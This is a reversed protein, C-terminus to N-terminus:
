CFSGPKLGFVADWLNQRRMVHDVDGVDTARQPPSRSDQQLRLGPSFGPAVSLLADWLNKLSEGAHTGLVCARLRRDSPADWLHSPAIPHATTTSVDARGLVLLTTAPMSGAGPITRTAQGRAAARPLQHFFGPVFGSRGLVFAPIYGGKPMLDFAWDPMLDYVPVAYFADEVPGDFVDWPAVPPRGSRSEILVGCVHEVFALREDHRAAPASKPQDPDCLFLDSRDQTPYSKMLALM